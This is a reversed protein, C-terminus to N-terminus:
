SWKHQHTIEGGTGGNYYYAPSLASMDSPVYGDNENGFDLVTFYYYGSRDRYYAPLTHYPERVNGIFEDKNTESNYDYDSCSILELEFPSAADANDPSYYYAVIYDSQLGLDTAESTWSVNPWEWTLNEPTYAKEGEGYYKTGSEVVRSNYTSEGDGKLQVTFFSVAKGTLSEAGEAHLYDFYQRQYVDDESQPGSPIIYKVILDRSEGYLKIETQHAPQSMDEQWSLGPYYVDLEKGSQGTYFRTDWLLECPDALCIPKSFNGDFNFAPSLASLFYATGSQSRVTFYYYGKDRWFSEDPIFYRKTVDEEDAPGWDYIGDPFLLTRSVHELGAASVANGETPSYYGDVIWCEDNYSEENCYDFKWVASNQEWALDKPAVPIRQTRSYWRSDSKVADSSITNVGDGKLRVTFYYREEQMQEPLVDLAFDYTSCQGGVQSYNLLSELDSIWVPNRSGERYVAIEVSHEPQGQPEMWSIAGEFWEYGDRGDATLYFYQNWNLDYPNKLKVADAILHLTGSSEETVNRELRQPITLTGNNIITTDWPLLEAVEASVTLASGEPILLAIGFDFMQLVTLDPLDVEGVIVCELNQVENNLRYVVINEVGTFTNQFWTENSSNICLVAASLTGSNRVCVTDAAVDAYDGGATVSANDVILEGMCALGIDSGVADIAAGDKVTLNGVVYIGCKGSVASRLSGSGSITVDVGEFVVSRAAPEEEEGEYVAPVVSWKVTNEGQLVLDLKLNEQVSEMDYRFCLADSNWVSDIAVCDMVAKYTTESQRTVSLTGGGLEWSSTQGEEIAALDVYLGHRGLDLVGNRYILATGDIFKLTLNGTESLLREKIFEDTYYIKVDEDDPYGYRTTELMDISIDGGAWIGLPLPDYPDDPTHSADFRSFFVDGGAIIRRPDSYYTRVMGDIRVDGRAELDIGGEIDGKVTVNGCDRTVLM